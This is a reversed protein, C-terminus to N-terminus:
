ILFETSDVTSVMKKIKTKIKDATFGYESKLDSAKGSKGFNNIGFIYDKNKVYKYWLYSSSAEIVFTPVDKPLLLEEYKPNQLEFLKMCPMSVVRIEIGEKSLEKAVEIALSVESGTSIIIANLDDKEKRIMYAGYKVYKSNSNKQQILKEKSIILVSPLAKKLIISWSGIVEDIDCPRFVFLQPILTLSALQEVPQHTAGDEGVFVNDHTFIYTVPLNMMASARIAPRLYDSFTLFTSGFVKLNCLAMGNLIHGMAHERVGFSINKELPTLSTNFGSNKIYTKTSTSLDASGGIFYNNKSAIFNMIQQNSNRLEDEYDKEIKFDINELDINLTPEKIYKIINLIKENKSYLIEDYENFWKLYSKSTREAVKKRYENILSDNIDFLKNTKNYKAKFQKIDKETLAGSHVQKTGELLSGKGINKKVIIVTPKRNKKASKIAEELNSANSSKIEIVNFHMAEFRDAINENFVNDTQGDITMNNSNYIVILKNLKQTGAFSLAEYSIGEMLDGDGCIVYTYYDILKCNKKEKQILKRYYREALAMGVAIGIGGGLAGTTADVGPMKRVEPHGTAKSDIQRFTKLDEIDIKYGAMFLNAYLISSGHGASLIVRDRNIWKPDNININLIKGYLVYLIDAIDIAIGPHGSQALTIMDLALIKGENIITNDFKTM